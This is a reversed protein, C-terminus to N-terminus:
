RRIEYEALFFMGVARQRRLTEIDSAVTKFVLGSEFRECGACCAPCYAAALAALGDLALKAACDAYFGDTRDKSRAQSTSTCGMLMTELFIM